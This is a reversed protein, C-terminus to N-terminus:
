DVRFTKACDDFTKEFKAFSEPTASCTINYGRSGKVTIYVATQMEKGDQTTFTFVLRKGKVNGLDVDSLSIQRYANLTAAMSDIEVQVYEELRGDLVIGEAQEVIGVVINEHVKASRQGSPCFFIVDATPRSERSWSAPPTISYGYKESHYPGTSDEGGIEISCGGVIAVAVALGLGAVVIMRRMKM